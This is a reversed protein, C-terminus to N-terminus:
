SLEGRTELSASSGQNKWLCSALVDKDWCTLQGGAPGAARSSNTIERTERKGDSVTRLNSILRAPISLVSFESTELSSVYQLESM